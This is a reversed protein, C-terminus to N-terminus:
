KHSNQLWNLYQKIVVEESNAGQIKRYLAIGFEAQLTDNEILLVLAEYFM